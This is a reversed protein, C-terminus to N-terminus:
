VEVGRDRLMKLLDSRMAFYALKTWNLQGDIVTGDVGFEEIAAGSSESLLVTTQAPKTFVTRNHCDLTDNIIEYKSREPDAAIASEIEEILRNLDERYEREETSAM